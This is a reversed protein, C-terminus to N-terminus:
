IAWIQGYFAAPFWCSAGNEGPVSPRTRFGGLVARFIYVRMAFPCANFKKRQWIKSTASFKKMFHFLRVQCIWVSFVSRRTHNHVSELYQQAIPIIRIGPHLTIGQTLTSFRMVSASMVVSSSSACKPLRLYAPRISVRTKSRLLPIEADICTSCADQITYIILSLTRWPM